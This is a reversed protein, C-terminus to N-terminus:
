ADLRRTTSHPSRADGDDPSGACPAPLTVTCATGQGPTSAMDIRGGHAQVISRAISLGLGTGGDARSRAKDVRYFREFVHPLHEAAIGVGTDEVAVVAAHDRQGVRVIVSGGEPTHKLANDLLNIFVQRLRGEDGVIRVPGTADLRLRVGNADALPQLADAVGSVLALLDLPACGMQEVGADRRSLALFQDTLRSLRVLEELVGGLLQQLEAPSLSKGLALEVQTRLATLPTRLEHSADATFRSVEAFSRELRAIMANITQTLLGLEDHPNTAELRRDLHEATIAETARRLRDVPALAKRALWYALGASLLLAVPGATVLVRLAQALERDVADLPALLLVVFDQGGLRMREALLRQRGIDPLQGESVWRTGEQPPAGPAGLLRAPASPLSQEALAPTWALPSGDARYVVCYLGLHDRYEAIWYRLRSDTSTEVRPDRRLQGLAAQLHRDTQEFLASRLLGYVLAAFCALVAAMALTSWLALRWRISLRV